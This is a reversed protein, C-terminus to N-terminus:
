ATRAKDVNELFETFAAENLPRSFHYGQAYSCGMKTLIREQEEDEIGEAVVKLQLNDALALISRIIARDSRDTTIENVFARDIKLSDAPLRKLYGLSSYGTGFDDISISLGLQQLDALVDVVTEVNDMILSETIELDIISHKVGTKTLVDALKETFNEQNFQRASLNVAVSTIWPFREHWEKARLCVEEFVWDGIDVILGTEEALPIFEMPSVLGLDPHQWRILAEMGYYQKTQLDIKPQYFMVFQNEIIAKRLAEEVTHKRLVKERIEATYFQYTNRNLRKSEYMASDAYQILQQPNLADDPTISIGISASITIENQDILYPKSIVFLLKEALFRVASLDTLATMVVVFEDGGFRAVTDEERLEDVIRRAAVQLLKDGFQHGFSDNIVKFQDLDIFMVAANTNHRKAYAIAQELRDELLNRNPLKTLEDHTALYSIQKTDDSLRQHMSDLSHALQKLEVSGWGNIRQPRQKKSYAQARKVLNQIPYTIVYRASANILTSILVVTIILMLGVGSLMEKLPALLANTPVLTFYQWGMPEIALHLIHYDVGQVRIEQFEVASGTSATSFVQILTEEEPPIRFTDINKELETQWQGALIFKGNKDVLFHQEGKFKQHVSDVLNFLSELSIDHGLTGTWVGNLDLPYVVSVIHEDMVSDFMAPTWEAKRLPNRYHSTLTMWETQTYDTDSTMNYIFDPHVPDYILETRDHGLFWTNIFKDKTNISPAFSEFINFMEGWFSKQEDSLTLDPPIFLGAQISGDFARRENRWAQDPFQVMRQEFRRVDSVDASEIKTAIIRSLNEISQAAANLDSTFDDNLIQIQEHLVSLERELLMNKASFYFIFLSPLLVVLASLVVIISM